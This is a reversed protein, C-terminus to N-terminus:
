NWRKHGAMNVMFRLKGKSIVNCKPRLVMRGKRMDKGWEGEKRGIGGIIDLGSVFSLKVSYADFIRRCCKGSGVGIATPKPPSSYGGGM